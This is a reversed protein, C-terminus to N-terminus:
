EWVFNHMYTTLYKNLIIMLMHKFNNRHAQIIERMSKVVYYRALFNYYFYSNTMVYVRIISICTIHLKYAFITITYSSSHFDAIM